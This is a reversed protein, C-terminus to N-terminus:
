PKSLQPQAPLPELHGTAKQRRSSVRKVEAVVEPVRWACLPVYVAVGLLILLVLRGAAPVGAAILAQRTAFVVAAM